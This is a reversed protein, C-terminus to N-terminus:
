VNYGEKKLITIVSEVADNLKGDANVVEYYYFSREEKVERLANEYRKMIETEDMEPNRARLRAPVEDMSGPMVFVTTANYHTKYFKTGVIDPNVIVIYGADLKADLDVKYTGYHTDRNKVYTTELMEGAKEKALFEEKTFFYYDIGNQEGPRPARTTATVLRVVRQPYRRVIANTISSEGSGTPGSVVAVQKSGPTQM